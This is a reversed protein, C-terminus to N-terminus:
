LVGKSYESYGDAFISIKLRKGDRVLEGQAATPPTRAYAHEFARASHPQAHTCAAHGKHIIQAPVPQLFTHCPAAAENALKGKFGAIDRSTGPM